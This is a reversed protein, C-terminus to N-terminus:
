ITDDVPCGVLVDDICRDIDIAGGSSYIKGQKAADRDGISWAKIAENTAAVRRKKVDSKKRWKGQKSQRSDLRRCWEELVPAVLELDLGVVMCIVRRFSELYGISDTAVVLCIRDKLSMTGSLYRDKPAVATCKRNLSENKNTDHQHYCQYLAESRLYPAYLDQLKELLKKDTVKHRFRRMYGVPIVTPQIGDTRQSQLIKCWQVNCLSHDNFHHLYMCPARRVFEEFPLQQNIDQKLYYGAYKKLKLAEEKSM